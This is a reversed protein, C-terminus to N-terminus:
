KVEWVFGDVLIGKNRDKTLDIVQPRNLRPRQYTECSYGSDYDEDYRPVIDWLGKSLGQEIDFDVGVFASMPNNKM